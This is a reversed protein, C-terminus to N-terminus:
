LECKAYAMRWRRYQRRHQHRYSQQWRRYESEVRSWISTKFSFVFGKNFGSDWDKNGIISVDGVETTRVRCEITFDQNSGFDFLPVNPVQVYDNNGDFLLEITDGLCNFAEDLTYTSDKLVTEQDIANGSLIFMVNEEEFSNGGHGFNIGGHDSTVIVLWNEADYNPRLELAKIVTGIHEDVDEIAQVYEPVDAAYVMLMDQM